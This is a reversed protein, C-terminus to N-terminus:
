AGLLVCVGLHCLMRSHPHRFLPSVRVACFIWFFAASLGVAALLVTSSARSFVFPRLGVAQLYPVPALQCSRHNPPRM